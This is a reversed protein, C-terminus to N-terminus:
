DKTTRNKVTRYLVVILWIPIVVVAGVLIYSFAWEFMSLVVGIVDKTSEGMWAMLRRPHVNFFSLVLGLILSIVALKIIVSVARSQM